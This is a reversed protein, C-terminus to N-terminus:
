VRRRIPKATPILGLAALDLKPASPDPAYQHMERWDNPLDPKALAAILAAEITPAVASKSSKSNKISVFWPCTDPIQHIICCIEWEGLIAAIDDDIM